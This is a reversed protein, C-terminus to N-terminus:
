WTQLPFKGLSSIIGGNGISYFPGVSWDTQWLRAENYWELSM